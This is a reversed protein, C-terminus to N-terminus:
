TAWRRRPPPRRRRPARWAPRCGRRPGGWSPHATSPIPRFTATLELIKRGSSRGRRGAPARRAPASVRPSCRGAIAPSSGTSPGAAARAPPAPELLGSAVSSAQRAGRVGQLPLPDAPVAPVACGSADVAVPPEEDCQVFSPLGLQPGALDMELIPAAGRRRRPLRQELADGRELAAPASSQSSTEAAGGRGASKAGKRRRRTGRGRRKPFNRLLERALAPPKRAMRTRAGRLVEEAEPTHALAAALLAAALRRDQKRAAHVLRRANRAHAGGASNVLLGLLRKTEPWRQVAYEEHVDRTYEALRWIWANAQDRRGIRREVLARLMIKTAEKREERPWGGIIDIAEDFSDPDRLAAIDTLARLRLQANKNRKVAHDPLAGEARGHPRLAADRAGPALREARGERRRACGM